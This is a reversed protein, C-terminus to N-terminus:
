PRLRLRRGEEMQRLYSGRGQHSENERAKGYLQTIAMHYGSNTIAGYQNLDEVSEPQGVIQFAIVKDLHTDPIQSLVEAISPKFLMPHGYTHYTLIECLAVLGKAKNKKKPDWIFSVQAIDVDHIYYQSGNFGVVPKIRGARKQLEEQSLKPILDLKEM